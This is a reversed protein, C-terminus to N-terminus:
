ELPGDAGTYGADLAEPHRCYYVYKTVSITRADAAASSSGGPSCKAILQSDPLALNQAVCVADAIAIEGVDVAKQETVACGENMWSLFFLLTFVAFAVLSGALLM